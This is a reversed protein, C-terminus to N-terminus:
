ISQSVYHVPQNLAPEAKDTVIHAPVRGTAYEAVEYKAIIIDIDRAMKTSLANNEAKLNISENDLAVMILAYEYQSLKVINSM